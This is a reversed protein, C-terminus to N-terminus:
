IKPVIKAEVVDSFNIETQKGDESTLLFQQGDVKELVGEVTIYNDNEKYKIKAIRGVNKSYQRIDSLPRSLGPSSVNLRYRSDLVEKEELEFGLSRSIKSCEDLNVGSKESDVLVWIEMLKAHKVEIDVLFMDHQQVIPEAISKIDNILTETM